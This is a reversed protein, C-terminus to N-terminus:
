LATSGMPDRRGLAAGPGRDRPPDEGRRLVRAADPGDGHPMRRQIQGFAVRPRDRARSRPVGRETRAVEQLQRVTCERALDALQRDNAPTAVDVVAAVKDFTLEGSSLGATLHPRKELQGGVDAYSRASARSVGCREVMWAELSTAGEVRWGERKRLEAAYASSARRRAPSGPRRLPPWDWSRRLPCPRWISM